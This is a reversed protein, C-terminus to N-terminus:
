LYGQVDTLGHEVLWKKQALVGRKQDALVLVLWGGILMVEALKEYGYGSVFPILATIGILYIYLPMVVVDHYTDMKQQGHMKAIGVISAVVAVALCFEQLSRSALWTPLEGTRHLIEANMAISATLLLDGITSSLALNYGLGEFRWRGLRIVEVTVFWLVLSIGWVPLAAL